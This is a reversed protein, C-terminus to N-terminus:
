EAPGEIKRILAKVKDERQFSYSKEEKSIFEYILVIKRFLIKAKPTGAKEEVEAYQMIIDALLEIEATRIKKLKELHHLLQGESLQLITDMELELHDKILNNVEKKIEEDEGQEKLGLLGALAKALMALMRDTYDRTYAMKKLSHQQLISDM